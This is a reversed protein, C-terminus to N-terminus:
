FCQVKRSLHFYSYSRKNRRKGSCTLINVTALVLYLKVSPEISCCKPCISNTLIPLSVLFPSPIKEHLFSMQILTPHGLTLSTAQIVEWSGRWDQTEIINGRSKVLLLQNHYLSRCVHMEENKELFAISRIHFSLFSFFLSLSLSLFPLLLFVPHFSVLYLYMTQYVTTKIGLQWPPVLFRSEGSEM